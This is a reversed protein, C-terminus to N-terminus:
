APKKIAKLAKVFDKRRSIIIAMFNLATGLAYLYFEDMVYYSFWTVQIPLHWLVITKKDPWIESFRGTLYALVPLLDRYAEIVFPLGIAVAILSLSIRINRSKKDKKSSAFSQALSFSGIIILVLTAAYAEHMILYPCYLLTSVTNCRLFQPRSIPSLYAWFIVAWGIIYFVM